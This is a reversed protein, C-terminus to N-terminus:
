WPRKKGLIQEAVGLGSKIGDEHFGYGTYAGCFWTSNKGQIKKLDEQAEFTDFTFTPHSYDIIKIIKSYVPKKFPNLTVFYNQETYLRQLNNMWYSVSLTEKKSDNGLFNWSSWVKKNKPMLKEDTHFYVKNSSYKISSLIRKEDKTLDKLLKIAQDTHTAIVLKDFFKKKGDVLLTVQNKNRNLVEVCINKKPMIKKSNLIKKVYEKSGGLVTKWKPRFFLNFLNHNNFFKVFKDFPYNAIDSLQSSWISAAMPYIHNQKFYDSYKNSTLFQSLTESKYNSYNQSHFKYFKLIEYVMFLFDKNLLNRKQAFIGSFGSGSYELEGNNRSVSFSMDSESIKVNLSKFLKCLNPYNHENFVIFGSDVAIEKNNEQVIQTNSHGGFYSKKEFLNVRHYKSILWSASLGSIGSGIVAIKM